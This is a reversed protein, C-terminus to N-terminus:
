PASGRPPATSDRRGRRRDDRPRHRPAPGGAPVPDHEAPHHDPVAALRRRQLEGRGQDPAPRHHPRRRPRQDRAAAGRASLHDPGPHRARHRGLDRAAAPIGGAAHRQAGGAAARGRLLLASVLRGRPRAPHRRRHRPCPRPCLEDRELRPRALNRRDRLVHPLRSRRGPDALLHLDAQAALAGGVRGAAPAAPAGVLRARPRGM